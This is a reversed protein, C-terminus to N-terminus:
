QRLNQMLPALERVSEGIMTIVGADLGVRMTVGREAPLVSLSIRDKGETAKLTLLLTKIVPNNDVSAAFELIPTLAIYGQVPPLLQEAQQASADLIEVLTARANKGFALYVSTKGTGIVVDMPDGLTKRANADANRPLPISATHLTVGGHTEANFNVNPTKSEKSKAFAHLAQVTAALKDGDSVFGGVVATMAEPKLVLCGGADMKAAEVTSVALDLFDGIIKKAQDKEAADTLKEDADIGKMAEDRALEILALTQKIDSETYPATVLFAAASNPHLMGSFASSREGVQAMDKALQTRRQATVNVDLHTSKNTADVQWGVTLHDTEEVLAVMSDLWSEGLQRAVEAQRGDRVQNELGEEFGRRMQEVAQQRLDAPINAVNVRVALTYNEPMDGLLKGPNRPLDQLLSKQNAFFAWGNAEKVFVSQPRDTALEKVGDGADRPQGLQDQLVGLLLDLDKVGLFGVVDAQEIGTATLYAGAPKTKDLGATYPAAMLTVLRGVDGAGAVETLFGVDGLLKDSNTISVVVVPRIQIGGDEAAQALSKAAPATLLTFALVFTLLRHLSTSVILWEKVEQQFSSVVAM